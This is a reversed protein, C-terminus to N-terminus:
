KGLWFLGWDDLRISTIMILILLSSFHNQHSHDDSYRTFIDRTEIQYDSITVAPISVSRCSLTEWRVRYTHSLCFPCLSQDSLCLLVRLFKGSWSKWQDCNKVHCHTPGENTVTGTSVCCGLSLLRSWHVLGLRERGAAWITIDLSVFKFLFFFLYFFQHFDYCFKMIYFYDLCVAPLVWHEKAKESGLSWVDEKLPLRDHQQYYKYINGINIFYSPISELHLLKGNIALHHGVLICLYTPLHKSHQTISWDAALHNEAQSGCTSVHVGERPQPRRLSVLFKLLSYRNM